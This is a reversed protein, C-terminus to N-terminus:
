KTGDEHVISIECFTIMVKKDAYHLTYSVWGINIGNEVIFGHTFLGSSIFRRVARWCVFEYFSFNEKFHTICSM